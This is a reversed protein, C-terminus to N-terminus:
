NKHRAGLYLQKGKKSGAFFKFFYIDFQMSQNPIKRVRTLMPAYLTNSDTGPMLEWALRPYNWQAGDIIQGSLAEIWKSKSRANKRVWKDILKQFPMGPSITPVGFLQGAEKDGESILCNRRIVAKAIENRRRQTADCISNVQDLGIELRLFPFAPWEEIPPEELPPAVAQLREYLDNAADLVQQDSENFRSIARGYRPFFQPSTLFENAFRQIIGSNRIDVVVQGAFLGPAHGACQFLIVKTDPSRPDMAVGCEWMCYGWDQDPATYVLIVVSATWLYQKLQEVLNKGIEPGKGAFSSSQFIGVRGGSQAKLFNSIVTAIAKDKHRHSIFVLPKSVRKRSVKSGRKKKM